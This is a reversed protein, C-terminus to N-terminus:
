IKILTPPPPLYNSFFKPGAAVYSTVHSEHHEQYPDMFGDRIDFETNM